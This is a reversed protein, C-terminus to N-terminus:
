KDRAWSADTDYGIPSRTGSLVFFYRAVQEEETRISHYLLHLAILFFAALIGILYLGDIGRTRILVWMALLLPPLVGRSLRQLGEHYLHNTNLRDINEKFAIAHMLRFLHRVGTPQLEEHDTALEVALRSRVLAQLDVGIGLYDSIIRRRVRPTILKSQLSAYIPFNTLIGVPYSVALLLLAAVPDGTGGLYGFLAFSGRASLFPVSLLVIALGPLLFEVIIVFQV